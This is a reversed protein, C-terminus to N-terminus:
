YSIICCRAGSPMILYMVNLTYDHIILRYNGHTSTLHKITPMMTNSPLYRDSVHSTFFFSNPLYLSM